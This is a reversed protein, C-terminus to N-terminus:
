WNWNPAVPVKQAVRQTEKQPCVKECVIPEKAVTDKLAMLNIDIETDIEFAYAERLLLNALNTETEGESDSDSGPEDKHDSLDNDDSVIQNGTQVAELVNEDINRFKVV